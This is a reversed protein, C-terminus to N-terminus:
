QFLNDRLFTINCLVIFDDIDKGSHQLLIIFYTTVAGAMSYLLTFDIPFFGCAIFQLKRHHMQQSFMQLEGRVEPHLPRLLLLKHVLVATHIAKDTAGQCSATIAALKTLNITGWLLVMSLVHWQLRDNLQCTLLKTVYKFTVCLSSSIEVFIQILNILFQVQYISLILEAADCLLNYIGRLRRVQIKKCLAEDCSLGNSHTDLANLDPENLDIAHISPVQQSTDKTLGCAPKRKRSETGPVRKKLALKEPGGFISLLEENLIEFQGKLLLISSILQFMVVEGVFIFLSYLLNVYNSEGHAPIRFDMIYCVFNSIVHVTVGVCSCLFVKDCSDNSKSLWLDVKAVLSLLNMVKRRNITACFAYSIIVLLSFFCLDSILIIGIIFNYNSFLNEINWQFMTIFAAISIGFM